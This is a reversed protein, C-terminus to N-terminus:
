NEDEALANEYLIRDVILHDLERGDSTRILSIRCARLEPQGAVSGMTYEGHVDDMEEWTILAKYGPYPFFRDPVTEVNEGHLLAYEAAEILMHTTRWTEEAEGIRKGASASLQFLVGMSLALIAVAVVTELLTFRFITKKM